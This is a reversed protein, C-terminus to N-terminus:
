INIKKIIIQSIESLYDEELLGIKKILRKVDIARLQFVLAVSTNSLGNLSSAEIKVSSLYRIASLNTTFPVVLVTNAEIYSVILCPRQGMQEHGDSSPLEMLYIEGPNFM